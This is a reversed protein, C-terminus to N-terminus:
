VEVVNASRRWWLVVERTRKVGNNGLPKSHRITHLEVAIESYYSEDTRWDSMEPSRGDRGEEGVRFGTQLPETEGRDRCLM